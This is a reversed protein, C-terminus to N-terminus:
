FLVLFLIKLVSCSSTSLPSRCRELADKKELHEQAEWGRWGGGSVVKLLLSQLLSHDPYVACM